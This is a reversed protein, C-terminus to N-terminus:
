RYLYIFGSKHFRKDPNDGIADLVYYYIGQSLELGWSTCGDWTITYGEAEYVLSGSRTFIKLALPTSGYSSVTFFDNRNDGNPTFVNQVILESFVYLSTEKSDTCGFNDSVTLKVTYVTDPAPFTVTIQKTTDTDVDHIEWLYRYTASPDTVGTHELIYTDYDATEAYTFDAPSLLQVHVLREESVAHAQDGNIVVSVDFYGPTNYVVTDPDVQDSTTGNGFDWLISTVTGPDVNDLAFKVRAEGCGFTDSAVILPIDPPAALTIVQKSSDTCGYLTSVALKVTYTGPGAYNHIVNRDASTEGDGFDWAYIGANSYPQDKHKFSIAYYGIETTDTYTFDAKITPYVTIYNNKIITLDSELMNEISSGFLLTVTYPAPVTYSVIPPDRLESSEGNGFDWFFNHITDELANDIFTFKVKISDCGATVDASIDYTSTQAIGAFPLMLALILFVIPAKSIM